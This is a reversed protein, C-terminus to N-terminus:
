KNQDKTAREKPPLRFASCGLCLWGLILFFGGLPAVHGLNKLGTLALLTLAGSFLLAGLTLIAGALKPLRGFRERPLTASIVTAPATLLLFLGATQLWGLERPALVTELGHAAIASLVVGM